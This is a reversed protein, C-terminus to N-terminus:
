RRFGYDLIRNMNINNIFLSTVLLSNTLNNNWYYRDDCCDHHHHHHNCCHNNKHHWGRNDWRGGGDFRDFGYNYYPLALPILYPNM